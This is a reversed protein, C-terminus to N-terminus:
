PRQYVWALLADQANQAMPANVHNILMVMTYRKGDSALVYGAMARVDNLTGSKMHANGVIPDGKARRRFTGDVGVLSMSSVFEPMVSSKWAADLLQSLTQASIREIRSLGAGNEILLEPAAIGKKNLWSKVIELARAATAPQKDSEASLTLYLQRAMVNNSYKNIDRVIEALSPSESTAILRAEAPTTTLKVAGHWTGGVDTWLSSFVGGVFRAHDLLSVNWVREGCSRSYNGTFAVKLQTASVTQVDLKIRERWDGCPTDTLKVRSVIDLQAPKADPSITVSRDDISPAFFFRVTKFNLLMADPGVNYARTVEGDFKAPDVRVDGFFSKDLVLDGKINRLGRERLQKLLLWFREVTMKPDGGGKLILDGTLSAGKLEGNLYVETKWSYAPGLLELGAYTTVLKMVSAPNMPKDINHVVLSDKAGVEKVLVSVQDLPIQAKTLADALAAPLSSTAVPVTAVSQTTIPSAPLSPSALALSNILFIYSGLFHCFRRM